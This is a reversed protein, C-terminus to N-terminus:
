KGEVKRSLYLDYTIREEGYYSPDPRISGERDSSFIVMNGDPSLYPTEDNDYRSNIEDFAVPTTWRGDIFKSMYIHSSQDNPGKSNFIMVKGDSSLSPSFDDGQTNIPFKLNTLNSIELPYVYQGRLEQIALPTSVLAGAILFFLINKKRVDSNGAPSFLIRAGWSPERCSNM